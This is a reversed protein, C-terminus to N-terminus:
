VAPVNILNFSLCLSQTQLNLLVNYGFVLGYIDNVFYTLAM